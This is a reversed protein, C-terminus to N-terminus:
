ENPEVPTGPRDVAPEDSPEAFDEDVGGGLVSLWFGAAFTHVSGPEEADRDAGERWAAAVFAGSLPTTGVWRRAADTATEGDAIVSVFDYARRKTKVTFARAVMSGDPM